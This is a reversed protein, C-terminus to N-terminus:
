RRELPEGLLEDLASFVFHDGVRVRETMVPNPLVEDGRVV